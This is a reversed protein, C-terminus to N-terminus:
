KDLVDNGFLENLKREIVIENRLGKVKHFQNHCGICVLFLNPKSHLHEHGPKESRFIIHHGEFRPTNTTGCFECYKYGVSDMMREEIERVNRIFIKQGIGVQKTGRVYMGTRYCPNKDGTRSLCYEESKRHKGNSKGNDIRCKASCFKNISAYPKFEVGCFACKKKRYKANRKGLLIARCYPSCTKQISKKSEYEKGCVVCKNIM